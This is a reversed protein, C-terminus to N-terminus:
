DKKIYDKQTSIDHAMAKADEEQQKLVNKYKDSLYIHRLMSSSVNKDFISNLIRTISNDSKLEKGNYKVAYGENVLFNNICIENLYVDALIRGYKENQINEKSKHLDTYNSSFYKISYEYDNNSRFLM